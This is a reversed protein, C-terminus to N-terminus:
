PGEADQVKQSAYVGPKHCRGMERSLGPVKYVPIYTIYVGSKRKGGAGHVEKRGKNSKRPTLVM